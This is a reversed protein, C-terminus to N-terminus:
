LVCLARLIHKKHSKFSITIVEYIIDKEYTIDKNGWTM